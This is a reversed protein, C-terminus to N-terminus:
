ITSEKSVLQIAIALVFTVTLMITSLANIIPTAGFKIMGYVYIPLTSTGPGAVFSTIIYDDISITFALLAGSIIAPLLFPIVVRATVQWSSAGLDLAAEILHDDFQELRAYVVMAVYSICFTTHAIIITMLGLDVQFALFLILLSMGMLIDPVVLPSYILGWHISQLRSSWRYLAFASLSGIITSLITAASGVYLSNKLAEWVDREEFLRHYWKFSFGLWESSFRSENFSSAMLILVPLYLFIIVSITTIFPFLSRRM